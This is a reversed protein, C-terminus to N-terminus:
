NMAPPCLPNSTCSTACTTCICGILAEFDDVGDAHTTKCGDICTTDSGCGNVCTGYDGCVSNAACAASEAMCADAEACSSCDPCALDDCTEM